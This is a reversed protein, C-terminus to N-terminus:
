KVRHLVPELPGNPELDAGFTAYPVKVFTAGDVAYKGRIENSLIFTIATDGLYFKDVLGPTNATLHGEQVDTADPDKQLEAIIAHAATAVANVNPRFLDHLALVKPQRDVLGVSCTEYEDNPHAGGMDWEDTWLISVLKSHNLTIEPTSTYSYDSYHPPDQKVEAKAWAIFAWRGHQSISIAKDRAYEQVRSHGDIHPIVISALWGKGDRIDPRDAHVIATTLMLLSAVICTPWLVRVTEGAREEGGQERQRLLPAKSAPSNRQFKLKHKLFM